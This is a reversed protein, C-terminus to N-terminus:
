KIEKQKLTLKKVSDKQSIIQPRTLEEEFSRYNMESVTRILNTPIKKPQYFRLPPQRVEGKVELTGLDIVDNTNAFTPLSFFLIIMKLTIKKMSSGVQELNKSDAAM